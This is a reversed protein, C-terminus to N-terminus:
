RSKVVTVQYEGSNTKITIGADSTLMGDNKFSRIDKIEPYLNEGDEDTQQLAEEITDCMDQASSESITSETTEEKLINLLKNATNM